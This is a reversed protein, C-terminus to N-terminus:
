SAPMHRAFFDLLKDWAKAEVEADYAAYMPPLRGFLEAARGPHDNMFSHGAGAHILIEHEVGLAQLQKELRKAHRVFATDRDGVQALTPCIGRLRGREPTVGYFPAAVAYSDDAAAILAFGGGMCFGTVGLRAADVDDREALHERAAAIVEYAEGSNTKMSLLTRVVCGVQGGAYLDPAIAAYGADAFRRCHRKTDSRFGTIDHIVVVGPHPGPADPLALAARRDGTSAPLTVQELVAM